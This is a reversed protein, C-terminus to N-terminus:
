RGQWWDKGSRPDMFSGTDRIAVGIAESKAQGLREGRRLGPLATRGATDLSTYLSLLNPDVCVGELHIVYSNGAPTDERAYKLTIREAEAYLVMAKYVGSLIDRPWDPVYVAEGVATQMDIMTVDWASIPLGRCGFGTLSTPCVWDWHHVRYVAAFTPVRPPAFLTHLRPANKDPEGGYEVLGRLSTTAVYSRMVLNLDPDIVPPYPEGRPSGLIPIATFTATSSTPCLRQEFEVSQMLAPLYLSVPPIPTTAQATIPYAVGLVGVALAVLM